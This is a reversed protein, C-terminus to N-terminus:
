PAGGGRSGSAEEFAALNLVVEGEGVRPNDGYARRSVVKMKEPPLPMVM